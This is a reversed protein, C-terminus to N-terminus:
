ENGFHLLYVQEDRVLRRGRWGDFRQATAADLNPQDSRGKSGLDGPCDM